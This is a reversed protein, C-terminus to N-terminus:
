TTRLQKRLRRVYYFAASNWVVLSIASAIAAGNIGYPEILIINLGINIILGIFLINQFLKQRGTMQLVIGVPGCFANFFQGICLIILAKSAVLFENGFIGLIFNRFLIILIIALTSIIFNVRTSYKILDDFLKYKKDHYANSLKPALISNIAQLTFSVIVAVKLVVSYVGVEDSSKFVGLLITDAWGLLVTMTASMLMPISEKIFIKPRYNTEFNIPFLYKYICIISIIFLLFISTTHAIVSIKPDRYGLLYIGVFILMAFLYRGGNFLFSYLTNYKLGRFVGANIQAISFFLICPSTWKLYISFEVDNFFYVAITDSFLFVIVCLIFTVITNLPLVKFYLGQSNKFNDQIAFIKVFGLDMGLKSFLAGIVMFSFALSLRGQTEAGFYKVVLYIFVYGSLFGLIRILFSIFSKNIIEKFDNNTNIKKVSM